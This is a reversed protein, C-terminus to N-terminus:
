ICPTRTRFFIQEDSHVMGWMSFIPYKLPDKKDIKPSKKVEIPSDGSNRTPTINPGFIASKQWKEHNKAFFLTKALFGGDVPDNKAGKSNQVLPVGPSIFFHGKKLGSRLPFFHWFKRFTIFFHGKKPTGPCFDDIKPTKFTIQVLVRGTM